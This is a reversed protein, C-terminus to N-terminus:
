ICHYYTDSTVVCAQTDIRLATRRGEKEPKIRCSSMEKNPACSNKFDRSLYDLCFRPMRTESSRSRRQERPWKERHQCGAEVVVAGEKSWLKLLM